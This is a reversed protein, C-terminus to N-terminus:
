LVPLELNWRTRRMQERRVPRDDHLKTTAPQLRHNRRRNVRITFNQAPMVVWAPYQLHICRVQFPTRSNNGRKGHHKGLIRGHWAIAIIDTEGQGAREHAGPEVVVFDVAPNLMDCSKGAVLLAALPAALGDHGARAEFRAFIHPTNRRQAFMEADFRHCVSQSAPKAQMTIAFTITAYRDDNAGSKQWLRYVSGLCRKEGSANWNILAIVREDSRNPQRDVGILITNTPITARQDKLRHNRCPESLLERERRFPEPLGIFPHFPDVRGRL